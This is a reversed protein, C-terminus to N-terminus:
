GWTSSAGIKFKTLRPRTSPEVQAGVAIPLVMAGVLLMFMVGTWGTAMSSIAAFRSLVNFFVDAEGSLLSVSKFVKFDLM